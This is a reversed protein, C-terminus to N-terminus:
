FIFAPRRFNLDRLRWSVNTLSSATASRFFDINPSVISRYSM